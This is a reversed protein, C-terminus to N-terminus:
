AKQISTQVICRAQLEHRPQPALTSGPNGRHVAVRATVFACYGGFRANPLPSVGPLSRSGRRSTSSRQTPLFRPVCAPM